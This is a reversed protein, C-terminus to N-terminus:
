PTAPAPTPAREQAIRFVAEEVAPDLVIPAPEKRVRVGIRVEYADCLDTLGTGTRDHVPM